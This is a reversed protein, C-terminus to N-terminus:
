RLTRRMPRCAAVPSTAGAATTPLTTSPWRSIISDSTSSSAWRTLARAISWNAWEEERAVVCHRRPPSRVGRPLIAHHAHEHCPWGPWTESGRALHGHWSQGFLDQLQLDRLRQGARRRCLPVHGASLSERGPRARGPLANYVVVRPGATAVSKALLELRSGLERHLIEAEKRAYARKTDFAQEYKKYAGQAYAAQWAVGYLNRPTGSNWSGMNPGAPGFTHESYLVSQEYAAALAPALDGTALGWARLQTDLTEVAPELPRITHAAKSEIPMSMWGHIWTDPMDARVVPLEPKEALVARAFDDLTGFHVHVGPMNKEAYRRINDVDGLSPPGQNDYTMIMALYNKSPWDKPSAMGSGYQPTFNCLLRSGDPGEWWYLHPVRLHGSTDNCGIQLFKVGAHTLLTPWIWSHCPVDTMKAAIPLPRGYQRAIKTAFGLSRVLDELDESETHLSFPLAQVALTGERVAQEIRIKRAPEQLSGLIHSAPWGPIIWAFRKEAPLQREQDIIRLANDMMQVRYKHLVGAVTDTYGIDFHTKFAVWVDTVKPPPPLVLADGAKALTAATHVDIEAFLTNTMAAIARNPRIPRRWPSSCIASIAWSATRTASSCAMNATGSRARRTPVRTWGPSRPGRPWNSPDPKEAAGGYLTYVQPGRSGQDVDWEHWSYSCVAAVPQITGLDIVIRGGDANANTLLAEESLDLSDNPLRGNVLVSGDGGQSEWQNGVLTVKAGAAIDSKSPRPITKFKWAPDAPNLHESKVTVEARVASLSGLISLAVVLTLFRRRM